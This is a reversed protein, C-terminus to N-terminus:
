SANALATTADEHRDHRVGVGELFRVKWGLPILVNPIAVDPVAHFKEDAFFHMATRPIFPVPGRADNPYQSENLQHIEPHVIVGTTPMKELKTDWGHGVIEMDDSWLQLWTGKAIPLLENWLVANGAGEPKDEGITVWINRGFHFLENRREMAERDSFHLRVLVEINNPNEVTDYFSQIARLLKDFRGLSPLLVSCLTTM